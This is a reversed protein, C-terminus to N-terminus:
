YAFACHFTKPLKIHNRFVTLLLHNDKGCNFSLSKMLKFLHKKFNYM